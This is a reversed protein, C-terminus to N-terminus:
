AFSPLFLLVGLDVRGVWILRLERRLVRAVRCDSTCNVGTRGFRGWTVSLRNGFRLQFRSNNDGVRTLEWAARIPLQRPILCLSALRPVRDACTLGGLCGMLRSWQSAGSVEM